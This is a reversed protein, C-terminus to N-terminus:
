PSVSMWSSSPDRFRPRWQNSITSSYWGSIPMTCVPACMRESALKVRTRLKNVEWVWEMWRFYGLICTMQFVWFGAPQVSSITGPWGKTVPGLKFEFCMALQPLNQLRSKFTKACSCDCWLGKISIRMNYELVSWCGLFWLSQKCKQTGPGRETNGTRKCRTWSVLKWTAVHVWPLISYIRDVSYNEEFSVSVM